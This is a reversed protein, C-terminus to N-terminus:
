IYFHNIQVVKESFCKSFLYKSSEYFLFTLTKALINQLFISGFFILARGETVTLNHFESQPIPLESSWVSTDIHYGPSFLKVGQWPDLSPFINNVKKKTATPKWTKNGYNSCCRSFCITHMLSFRLFKPFYRTRWKRYHCLVRPPPACQRGKEFRRWRIILEKKIKWMKSERLSGWKLARENFLWVMKLFLMSESFLGNRLHEEPVSDYHGWKWWKWFYAWIVRLILAESFSGKKLMCDEGFSWSNKNTRVLLCM